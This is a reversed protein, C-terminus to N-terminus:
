SQATSKQDVADVARGYVREAVTLLTRLRHRIEEAERVTTADTLAAGFRGLGSLISHEALSLSEPRPFQVIQAVRVERAGIEMAM